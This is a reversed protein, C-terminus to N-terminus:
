KTGTNIDGPSISYNINYGAAGGGGGGGAYTNTQSGLSGGGGGGGGGWLSLSINDIPEDFLTISGNNSWYIEFSVTNDDSNITYSFFSSKTAILYDSITITTTTTETESNTSSIGLSSLMCKINGTTRCDNSVIRKSKTNCLSTYFTKYTM